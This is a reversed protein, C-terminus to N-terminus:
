ASAGRGFLIRDLLLYQVVWMAGFSVLNAAMAAAARGTGHLGAAAAWGTVRSVAVTSVALSVFSLICFPVVEGRLSRHGKKGWVWRRNMEFSPGTGAATAIVNAWGATTAGTGVLVALVSLGITTSVASAGSYRILRGVAPWRRRDPGAVPLAVM